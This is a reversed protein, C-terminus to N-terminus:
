WAYTHGGKQKVHSEQSILNQQRRRPGSPALNTAEPPRLAVARTAQKGSPKPPRPNAFLNTPQFFAATPSKTSIMGGTHPSQLQEVQTVKRLESNEVERGHILIGTLWRMMKKNKNTHLPPWRSASREAHATSQGLDGSSWFKGPATSQM